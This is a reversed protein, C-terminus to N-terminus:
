IAAAVPQAKKLDSLHKILFIHVAVTLIAILISYFLLSFLTTLVLGTIALGKKKLLGGLVSFVVCVMSAIFLGVAIGDLVDAIEDFEEFDDDINLLRAADTDGMDAATKMLSSVNSISFSKGCAKIDKILDKVLSIEKKTLDDELDELRDDYRSAYKSITSETKKVDDGIVGKLLTMDGISMNVMSIHGIIMVLLCAAALILALYGKLNFAPATAQRPQAPTTTQQPQAPAVPQPNVRAGCKTCFAADDAMNNGCKTCFM